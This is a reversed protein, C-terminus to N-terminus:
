RVVGGRRLSGLLLTELATDSEVRSYAVGRTACSARVGGLFRELNRRYIQVTEPTVTVEAGKGSEADTLRLDGVMGRDREKAPDVEAPSLVQVAHADFAGGWTAAGLYALGADCGAAGTADDAMLFDSIVVMVGRGARHQAFGRCAAAFDARPDRGSLVDRRDVARMLFDGMPRLSRRGRLPRLEALGGREPSGGQSAALGFLGVSVRNQKILGIYALAFALRLAFGLKSPSGADMSNSADVLVHLALDEEERFLKIVLRELRAYVNWDIHRLDDGVTYARFDDFEVSRGRRKSRREGPLKGSLLKRSTIDLRDVKAALEPAILDEVSSPLGQGSVILMFFSLTRTGRCETGAPKGRRAVLM